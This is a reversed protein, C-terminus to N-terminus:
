ITCYAQWLQRVRSTPCSTPAGKSLGRQPKEVRAQVQRIRASTINSYLIAYYVITYYLITYYITYWM